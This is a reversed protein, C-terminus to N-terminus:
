LESEILWASVIDKFRKADDKCLIFLQGREKFHLTMMAGERMCFNCRGWQLEVGIGLLNGDSQPAYSPVMFPNPWTVTNINVQGIPVIPFSAWPDGVPMTSGSLTNGSYATTLATVGSNNM